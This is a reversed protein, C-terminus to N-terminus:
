CHPPTGMIVIGRTDLLQKLTEIADQWKGAQMQLQALYYAFAPDPDFRYADAILSISKNLGPRSRLEAGELFLETASL